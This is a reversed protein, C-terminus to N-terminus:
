KCPFWSDPLGSQQWSLQPTQERREQEQRMHLLTSTDVVVPLLDLFVLVSDHSDVWRTACYMRLRRQRGGEERADIFEEMEKVRKPSSLIFDCIRNMTGFMNRVAPIDCSKCVALNLRHNFCHIAVALPQQRRIVAQCGNFRGM